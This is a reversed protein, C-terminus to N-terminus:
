NEKPVLSEEAKQPQPSAQATGTDAQQWGQTQSKSKIYNQCQTLERQLRENSEELEAVKSSLDMCELTKEALRPKVEELEQKMAKIEAIYEAERLKGTSVQKELQLLKNTSAKSESHFSALLGPDAQNIQHDVISEDNSLQKTVTPPKSDKSPTHFQTAPSTGIVPEFDPQISKM